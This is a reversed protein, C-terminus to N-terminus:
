ATTDAQWILGPTIFTTQKRSPVPVGHQLIGNGLTCLAERLKEHESNFGEYNLSWVTM